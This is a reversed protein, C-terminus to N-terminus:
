AFMIVAGAPVIGSLDHGLEVLDDVNAHGREGRQYDTGADCVRLGRRLGCGGGGPGAGM